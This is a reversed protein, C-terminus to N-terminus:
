QFGKREVGDVPLYRIASIKANLRQPSVQLKDSVYLKYLKEVERKPSLCFIKVGSKQPHYTVKEITAKDLLIVTAVFTLDDSQFYSNSQEM